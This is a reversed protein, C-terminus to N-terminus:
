RGRRAVWHAAKVVVDAISWAIVVSWRWVFLPLHYFLTSLIYGGGVVIGYTIWYLLTKIKDM